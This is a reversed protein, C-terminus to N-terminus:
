EKELELLYKKIDLGCSFGGLGDTSIARHCPIFILIPNKGCANGVARAANPNGMKEAIQKYTETEGYPIASLEHWVRCQFDSGTPALPMDFSKRKGDFYEALETYAKKITETERKQCNYFYLGDAIELHTIKGNEEAIAIQGIETSYFFFYEM